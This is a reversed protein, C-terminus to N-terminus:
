ALSFREAHVQRRPVGLERLSRLVASTMAPPGCVYVDRERVDPVLRTLNAPGLPGGDPSAATRGTVLHIEAGRRAALDRLEPLLVADEETRVRYLVVTPGTAEELLARIPTVGVGGAVLLTADKSRHLSTFAGYPGEAFVRAGVPVDRLATSRDGVAKATLRLSQGDPAASLSFPNAPWWGGFGPFRWIMFQGPRAPLKDLHRGTVHVSTADPGEPVVEAVRFQHYANRWIPIAFRGVLLAGIVFVWLATWYVKSPGTEKFTAPELYQHVLAAGVAVYMLMHIAHWAEYSLRRRVARLSLLVVTVLTAAAVMGLLSATVGALAGFTSFVSADDLRAYGLLILSLHALVTWFLTFGVWRHWVTLRDMGIRRELWPLRSVLLLQLMMLLAAHMGFFKAVTLTSNKGTEETFFLFWALLLNVAIVAWLVYQATAAPSAGGAQARHAATATM